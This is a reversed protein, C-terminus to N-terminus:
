FNPNHSLVAMGPDDVGWLWSQAYQHAWDDEETFPRYPLLAIIALVIAVYMSKM